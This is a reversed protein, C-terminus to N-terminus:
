TPNGFFDTAGIRSATLHGDAGLVVLTERTALVTGGGPLAIAKAPASDVTLSGTVAGTALSVASLAAGTDNVSRNHAVLVSGAGDGVARPGDVVVAAQQFVAGGIPIARGDATVRVLVRGPAGAPRARVEVREGSGLTAQSATAGPSTIRARDPALTSAWTTADEETPKAVLTDLPIALITGDANMAVVRHRRADYGYASRKAVFSGGLGAVGDGRAAISGDRIDVIALGSDTALYAYRQGAALVTAEWVLRDSLQTDWRVKGTAPDTAALRVQFMDETMLQFMGRPGHREYPVLVLDRGDVTASGIGTQVTIDPEPAVLYSLGFFLFCFLLPPLLLLSLGARRRISPKQTRYM